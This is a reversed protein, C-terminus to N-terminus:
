TNHPMPQFNPNHLNEIWHDLKGNMIEDITYITFEKYTKWKEMEHDIDKIEQENMNQKRELKRELSSTSYDVCLQLFQM